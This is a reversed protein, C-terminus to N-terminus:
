AQELVLVVTVYACDAQVIDIRFKTGQAFSPLGTAFTTKPPSVQDKTATIVLKNSAGSLFITAWTRSGPTSTGIDISYLIDIQLDVSGVTKCNAYAEVINFQEGDRCPLEAHLNVDTGATIPDYLDWTVKIRRPTETTGPPNVITDGEEVSSISKKGTFDHLQKLTVADNAAVGKRMNTIRFGNMSLPSTIKDLNAQEVIRNVANETGRRLGELDTAPAISVKDIRPM